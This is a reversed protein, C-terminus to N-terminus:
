PSSLARASYSGFPSAGVDLTVRSCNDIVHLDTLIWVLSVVACGSSAQILPWLQFELVLWQAAM